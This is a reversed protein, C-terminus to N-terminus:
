ELRPRDTDRVCALVVVGVAGTRKTEITITGNSNTTTAYAAGTTLLACARLMANESVKRPRARKDAFFLFCTLKARVIVVSVPTTTRVCMELRVVADLSECLSAARSPVDFRSRAVSPLLTASLAKRRSAPADDTSHAEGEDDDAGSLGGSGGVGVDSGRRNRIPRMLNAIAAAEREVDSM